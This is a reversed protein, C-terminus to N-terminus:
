ATRTAPERRREAILLALGGFLAGIAVTFAMWLTLQPVVGIFFWKVWPSTDMTIGPPLVDYHTGWNGLIALLMVLIVPIRAALGYAFLTKGLAGTRSYAIALSVIAAVAIMGLAGLTPQNPDVGLIRPGLFSLALFVVISLVAYGLTRLAPPAQEAAHLKWAFYIGFIPVLWAIGIIAGAGGAEANFFTRSWGNLEGVLRLLTVAATIIAPVLILRYISM